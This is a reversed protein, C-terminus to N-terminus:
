QVVIPKSEGANSTGRNAAEGYAKLLPELEKALQGCAADSTHAAASQWAELAAEFAEAHKGRAAAAQAQAKLDRARKAAEAPSRKLSPGPSTSARDSGAQGGAAAPVTGLSGAGTDSNASSEAATQSGQQDNNSPQEGADAPKESPPAAVDAPVPPQQHTRTQEAEDTQPQPVSPEDSEQICGSCGPMTAVLTAIAVLAVFRRCSATRQTKCHNGCQTSVLGAIVPDLSPDGPGQEQAAAMLHCRTM